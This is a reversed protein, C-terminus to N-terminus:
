RRGRPKNRREDALEARRTPDTFYDAGEEPENDFMGGCRQCKFQDGVTGIVVVKKNTGCVPCPPNNKPM